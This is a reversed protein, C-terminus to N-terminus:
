STQHMSSYSPVVSSKTPCCEASRVPLYPPERHVQPAGQASPIHSPIDPPYPRATQAERRYRLRTDVSPPCDPGCRSTPLHLRYSGNTQRPSGSTSRSDPPVQSRDPTHAPAQHHPFAPLFQVSELLLSSKQKWILFPFSSRLPVGPM